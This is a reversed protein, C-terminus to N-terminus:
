LNTKKNKRYWRHTIFIAGGMLLFAWLRAIFLIFSLIISGGEQLAEALRTGFGTRYAQINEENACMERKVTQDQYITLHITAFAVQDKLQLNNLLTNDAREQKDALTQEAEVIEDLKRGHADIAHGLRGEQKAARQRALKNSLISLSVDECTINRYDLYDVWKAIEKLTADLRRAPVRLQMDNSLTYYTSVLSSDRSISVNRTYNVESKLTTSAVFGDQQAVIDEIAYSAKILDKAKFRLAATRILQRASDAKGIVASSSSVYESAIPAQPGEKTQGEERTKTTRSQVANAIKANAPAKDNEAPTTNESPSNEQQMEKKPQSCANTLLLAMLLLVGISYFRCHKM